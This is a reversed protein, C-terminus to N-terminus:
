ARRGARVASCQRWTYSAASGGPRTVMGRREMRTSSLACSLKPNLGARDALPPLVSACARFLGRRRFLLTSATKALLADIRAQLLEAIAENAAVVAGGLHSLAARGEGVLNPVARAVYVSM